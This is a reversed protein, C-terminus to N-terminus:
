KGNKIHKNDINAVDSENREPENEKLRTNKDSVMSDNPDDKIVESIQNKLSSYSQRFIQDQTKQRIEKM